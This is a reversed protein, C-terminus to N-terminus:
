SAFRITRLHQAQGLSLGFAVERKSVDKVLCSSPQQCHARFHFDNQRAFFDVPTTGHSFRTAHADQVHPGAPSGEMVWSGCADKKAIRPGASLLEM